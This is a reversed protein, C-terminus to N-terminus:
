CHTLSLFVKKEESSFKNIAKFRAFIEPEKFLNAEESKGLL